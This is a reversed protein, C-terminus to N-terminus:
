VSGLQQYQKIAIKLRNLGNILQSKPCAYNLRLFSQGNGRFIRGASLVLGTQERIFTVLEESDTCFKSCDLWSLYTAQSEVLHIEPLEEALFRQIYALNAALYRNLKTLWDNGKEFAAQMALIAFMNPEAVEDTNIGRNVLQRLSENAIIIASSQLGALNFAKSASVCTITIQEIEKSVSAFPIYEFGPHALDCHLEDSIITVQYKLCLEGIKQLTEYDWIRGTPNHPNCFILLSTDKRALKEELDEFNISYHDNQYNMQSELVTRGNNYISNYFINYIPSLVLVADTPQTLKCVMSSIAPIAGTCFLIWDTNVQWHHHKSRWKAVCQKFTEPM